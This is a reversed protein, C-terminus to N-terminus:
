TPFIIPPKKTPYKQLAVKASESTPYTCSRYETVDNAEWYTKFKSTSMFPVRNQQGIPLNWETPTGMRLVLTKTPGLSYCLVYLKGKDPAITTITHRDPMKPFLIIKIKQM